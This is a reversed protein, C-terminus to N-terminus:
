RIKAPPYAMVPCTMYVDDQTALRAHRIRLLGAAQGGYLQPAMPLPQQLQQQRTNTEHSFLIKAAPGSLSSSPRQQPTLRHRGHCKYALRTDEVTVDAVHLHGDVVAYKSGAAM